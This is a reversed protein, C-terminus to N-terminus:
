GGLDLVGRVRVSVRGGVWIQDGDDRVDIRGARGVQMGQVATYSAPAIERSRMWQALAANLSGTVPDEYEPRFGRVEYLPDDRGTLAVVGLKLEGSYSLARLTDVDAVQVMIWGPGNDGWAAAHIEKMGLGLSKAVRDLEAASLPGCKTLPPAAFALQEGDVRVAVTGSECEQMLVGPKRPTGGLELWAKATGLTPHGAFPLERAPTFIRVRYDANPDRPTLIFTTESFNTWSAIRQMMSTDLADAGAVVALPNGTFAGSVFVDLELFDLQAAM